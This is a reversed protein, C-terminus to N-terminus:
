EFAVWTFSANGVYSDYVSEGKGLSYPNYGSVKFGTKTVDGVSLFPRYASDVLVTPVNSFAKEFEIEVWVPTTTASSVYVTGTGKQTKAYNALDGISAFELWNSNGCRFFLRNGSNWARYLQVIYDNKGFVFVTGWGDTGGPVNQTQGGITAYVGNTTWQFLDNGFKSNGYEETDVILAYNVLDDTSTLKKWGKFTSDYRNNVWFEGNTTQRFVVYGRADTGRYISIEASNINPMSKQFTNGDNNVYMHCQSTNPMKAYVEELTNSMTMGLQSLNYYARNNVWNRLSNYYIATYTNGDEYNTFEARGRKDTEKEIVLQGVSGNPLSNNLATGSKTVNQKYISHTPMLEFLESVTNATSGGFQSLDTYTQLNRKGLSENLEDLAGEVSKGKKYLVDKAKQIFDFIM